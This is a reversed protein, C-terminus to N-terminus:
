EQSHIGYRNIIWHIVIDNICNMTTVYQIYYETRTSFAYALFEDFAYIFIEIGDISKRSRM